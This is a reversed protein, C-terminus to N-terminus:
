TVWTKSKMDDQEAHLCSSLFTNKLLAKPPLESQQAINFTVSLVADAFDSVGM